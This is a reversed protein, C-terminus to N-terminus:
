RPTHLIQLTRRELSELTEQLRARYTDIGPEDLDAPVRMPAGIALALSARPKPVQSADWSRATWAASADIHFPLIPRGTAGALWVAGPQAVRAPGRPGDVTFAV